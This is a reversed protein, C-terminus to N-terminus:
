QKECPPVPETRVIKDIRRKHRGGEFDEKLFTEVIRIGTKEDIYKAPLSCINADNHNRALRAQEENWCVAARIGPHKNVTMSIGNATYCIAIGFRCTGCEVADALPHAYDPYDCSDPSYCGFDKVSYGRGLFHRILEEKLAFGAHDSAFGITFTEM